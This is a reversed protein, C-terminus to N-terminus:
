AARKKGYVIGACEACWPADGVSPRGCFMYPAKATPFKCVLLRGAVEDFTKLDTRGDLHKSEGLRGVTPPHAGPGTPVTKRHKNFVRIKTDATKTPRGQKAQVRRPFRDPYKNALRIISGKSSAVADAIIRTSKGKAWLAAARAIRDETWGSHIPGKKAPM